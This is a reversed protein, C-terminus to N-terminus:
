QKGSPRLDQAASKGKPVTAAPAVYRDMCVWHDNVKTWVDVVFFERPELKGGAQASENLVFSAVAIEGSLSRVAMQRLRFSQLDGSFAERQWDERSVPGASSPTWVQFEEALLQNLAAQDKHKVAEFGRTELESFLAVLRTTIQIRGPNKGPGPTNQQAATGRGGLGFVVLVFLAMGAKKM